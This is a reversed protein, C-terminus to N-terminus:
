SRNKINLLDLYMIDLEDDQENGQKKEILSNYIDELLQIDQEKFTYEVKKYSMRGLILRFTQRLSYLQRKDDCSNLDAKINKLDIIM